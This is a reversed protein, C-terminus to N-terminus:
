PLEAPHRFIGGGYVLAIAAILREVGLSIPICGRVGLGVAAETLAADDHDTIVLIPVRTLSQSVLFLLGALAPDHLRTKKINCVVLQPACGPPLETQALEGVAYIRFGQVTELRLKLCERTLKTPDVLLIMVSACSGHELSQWGAAITIGSNGAAPHIVPGM